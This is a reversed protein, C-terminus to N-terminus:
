MARGVVDHLREFISFAVKWDATRIADGSDVYRSIFDEHGEALDDVLKDLGNIAPMEMSKAVDFLDRLHHGYGRVVKSNLGSFLLFAKFYLELAFGALMNVPLTMIANRPGLIGGPGLCNIKAAEVYGLATLYRNAGEVRDSHHEANSSTNPSSMSLDHCSVQVDALAACAAIWRGAHSFLM